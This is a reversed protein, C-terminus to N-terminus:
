FDVRLTAGIARPAGPAQFYARYQGQGLGGVVYRKDLVNTAWLSVDWANGGANASLGLRLNLLGYSDVKALESNDPSGFFDSRWAYEGSAYGTLEGSLDRRYSTSLNAIWKPAGVVDQGTLDCVTIGAAAAEASCPANHYSQYIADNYSTALGLTLGDLPVASVEAEVGRTRVLGVNALLQTYVGPTTQALQTAQYDKVRTWFANINLLLRQDLLTSKFGLEVDTAKEGDIFLSDTGLAAVPVSPNIGGSKAGQSVSVYGLVNDTLKYGASFLTSLNDDSLELQGSDYAPFALDVNPGGTAPDRLVRTSKDESTQRLGATLDWRGTVHWTAQAFASISDTKLRQRTQTYANNLLASGLYAGAEPGYQTYLVNDQYQYFYFLGAVWEVPQGGPSALRLEQSLQEDDVQQGANIIAPISISDADNTPRFWWSRYATISTINYEGLKINAEASGGGQRVEMFQRTDLTSTRFNPDYVVKGGAAAVRGYYLSGNDPGPSYLVSACCRSNEENYDGIVRLSFTDSPKYLLQGRVGERDSNNLERGDTVDDIYGGRSTKAFSIRGALVDTAIPGSYAARFQYYDAGGYDGYSAEASAEPAFSPERTAINLVGATTNKGFLTGQPGRLLSVQEIDILDLNAMGPRGLYVNDLYVGVSSELADNAPNNGLGRVAISTQRPNSFQVNTSPLKQNLDELRFKGVSELAAGGITAIPIPVDQVNETRRRATVTVSEISNFRAGSADNASVDNAALAQDAAGATEQAAAVHVFSLLVAASVVHVHTRVSPLRIM